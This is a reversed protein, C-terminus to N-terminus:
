FIKKKLIGVISSNELVQKDLEKIKSQLEKIQMELIKKESTVIINEKEIQRNEAMIREKEAEIQEIRQKLEFYEVELRKFAEKEAELAKSTVLNFSNIINDFSSQEMSVLQFNSSDQILEAEEYMNDSLNSADINEYNSSTNVNSAGNVLLKMNEATVIVGRHKSLMDAARDDISVVKTRKNNVLEISTTLL